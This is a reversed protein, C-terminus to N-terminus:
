YIESNITRQYHICVICISHNKSCSVYNSIYELTRFHILANGLLLVLRTVTHCQNITSNSHMVGNESILNASISSAKVVIHLNAMRKENDVM